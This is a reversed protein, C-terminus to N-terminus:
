PLIKIYSKAEFQLIDTQVFMFTMDWNFDGNCKLSQNVKFGSDIRRFKKKTFAYNKRKKLTLSPWKMAFVDKKIAVFM